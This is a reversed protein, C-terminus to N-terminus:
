AGYLLRSLDRAAEAALAVARRTTTRTEDPSATDDQATLAELLEVNALLAAFRNNIDHRRGKQAQTSLELLLSAARSACEGLEPAVAGEVILRGVNAGLPNQLAYALSRSPQHPAREACAMVRGAGDEVRCTCGTAAAVELVLQELSAQPQDNVLADLLTRAIATWVPDDKLLTMGESLQLKDPGQSPDPTASEESVRASARSRTAPLTWYKSSVHLAQVRLPAFKWLSNSTKLAVSCRHQMEAARM